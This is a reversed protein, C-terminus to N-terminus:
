EITIKGIVEETQNIDQAEVNEDEKGEEEEEMNGYNEDKETEGDRELDDNDDDVVAKSEVVNSLKM